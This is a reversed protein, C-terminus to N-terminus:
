YGLMFGHQSLPVVPASGLAGLGNLTFEFMATTFQTNNLGLTKGVYFGLGWCCSNYQIGLYSELSASQMLSYSTEVLTSWHTLVPWQLSVDVQEQVGRIYRHGVTIIANPKPSYEVYADGEDT